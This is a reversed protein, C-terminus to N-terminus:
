DQALTYFLFRDGAPLPFNAWNIVQVAKVRNAELVLCYPTGYWVGNGGGQAPLYTYDNFIMRGSRKLAYLTPPPYAFTQGLSVWSNLSSCIGASGVKARAARQASFSIVRENNIDGTMADYGARSMRVDYTGNSMKGMVVRRAM